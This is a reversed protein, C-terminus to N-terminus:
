ANNLFGGRWGFALIPEQLADLFPPELQRHAFRSLYAKFTLSQQRLSLASWSLRRLWRSVPHSM